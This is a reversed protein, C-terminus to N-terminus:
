LDIEICGDVLNTEFTPCNSSSASQWHKHSNGLATYFEMKWYEKLDPLGSAWLAGVRIYQHVRAVEENAADLYSVEQSHTGAPENAKTRVPTSDRRPVAKIRGIVDKRLIEGILRRRMRWESVRVIPPTM